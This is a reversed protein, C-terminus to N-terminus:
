VSYRDVEGNEEKIKQQNRLYAVKNILYEADWVTLEFEIEGGFLGYNRLYIEQSDGVRVLEELTIVGKVAGQNDIIGVNVACPQKISTNTIQDELDQYTM